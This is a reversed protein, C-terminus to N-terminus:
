GDVAAHAHSELFGSSPCFLHGLGDDNVAGGAVGAAQDALVQAFEVHREDGGAAVLCADGFGQVLDRTDLCHFVLNDLDRVVDLRQGLEEVAGAHDAVRDAREGLVTALDDLGADVGAAM